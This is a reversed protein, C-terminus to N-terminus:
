WAPWTQRTSPASPNEQWRGSRRARSRSSFAMRVHFRLVQGVSFFVGLELAAEDDKHVLTAQAGLRSPHPSPRRAPLGWQEMLAEIPLAEGDDTPDGQLPEVKLHVCAADFARLDHLEDLVQLAMELCAEQDDPVPRGNM